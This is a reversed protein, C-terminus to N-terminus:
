ARKRRRMERAAPVAAYAGCDRYIPIVRACADFMEGVRELAEITCILALIQGAARMRRWAPFPPSLLLGTCRQHIERSPLFHRKNSKTAVSKGESRGRVSCCVTIVGHAGFALFSTFLSM